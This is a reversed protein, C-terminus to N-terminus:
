NKIVMENFIMNCGEIQIMYVGQNLDGLFLRYNSIAGGVL